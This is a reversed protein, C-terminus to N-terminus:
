HLAGVKLVLMTADDTAEVPGRHRRVAEDIRALMQHPEDSRELVVIEELRNMGFQEGKPDEAEV